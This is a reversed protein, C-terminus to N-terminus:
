ERFVRRRRRTARPQHLSFSVSRHGRRLRQEYELSDNHGVDRQRNTQLLSQSQRRRQLEARVRGRHEHGAAVGRVRRIHPRCILRQLIM